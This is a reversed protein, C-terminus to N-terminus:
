YGSQIYEQMVMVVRQVTHPIQIKEGNLLIAPANKKSTLRVVLRYDAGIGVFNYISKISIGVCIRM